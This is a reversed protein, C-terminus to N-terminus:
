YFHVWYTHGNSCTVKTQEGFAAVSRSPEPEGDGGPVSISTRTDCHPCEVQRITTIQM